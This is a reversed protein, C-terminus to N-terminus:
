SDVKIDLINFAYRLANNWGQEFSETVDSLGDETCGNEQIYAELTELDEKNCNYSDVLKDVQTETIIWRNASARPRELLELELIIDHAIDEKTILELEDNVPISHEYCYTKYIWQLLLGKENVEKVFAEGTVCDSITIRVIDNPKFNSFEMM